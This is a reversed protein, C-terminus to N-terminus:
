NKNILNNLLLDTNAIGTILVHTEHKNITVKQLSKSNIYKPEEM